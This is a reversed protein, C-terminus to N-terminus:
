GFQLPPQELRIGYVNYILHGHLTNVNYKCWPNFKDILNLLISRIPHELNRTDVVPFSSIPTPTRKPGSTPRVYERAPSTLLRAGGFRVMVSIQCITLKTRLNRRFLAERMSGSLMQSYNARYRRPTRWGERQVQCANQFRLATAHKYSTRVTEVELSWRLPM